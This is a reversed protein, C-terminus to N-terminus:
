VVIRCRGHFLRPVTTFLRSCGYLLRVADVAEQICDKFDEDQNYFTPPRDSYRHHWKVLLDRAHDGAEPWLQLLMDWDSGMDRHEVELELEGKMQECMERVMKRRKSVVQELTLAQENLSIRAEVLLTGGDVRAQTAEIGMLPPFLVQTVTRAITLTVALTVTRPPPCLPPLLVEHPYVSLWTVAM